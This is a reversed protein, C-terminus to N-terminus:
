SVIILRQLNALLNEGLHYNGVKISDLIAIVDDDTLPIILEQKQKWLDQCRKLFLDKNDIYRCILIGANSSNVSFRGSLQDLEPNTPDDSYNKCEIFIYRSVIKSVDHLRYFFGERAVNDFSIDIRKRGENIEKEKVPNMLSPYFILELIGVM